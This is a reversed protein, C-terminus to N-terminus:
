PGGKEPGVDEVERLYNLEYVSEQDYQTPADFPEGEEVHVVVGDDEDHAVYPEPSGLRQHRHRENGIRAHM